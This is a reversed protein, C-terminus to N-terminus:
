HRRTEQTTSRNLVCCWGGNNRRSLILQGLHSGCQRYHALRRLTLVSRDLGTPRYTLSTANRCNLALLYRVSFKRVAPGCEDPVTQEGSSAPLLIAQVSRSLQTPLRMPWDAVLKRGGSTRPYARVRALRGAWVGRGVVGEGPACEGFCVFSM